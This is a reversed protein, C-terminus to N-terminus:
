YKINEIHIKEKKLTEEIHEIEQFQHKYINVEQLIKPKKIIEISEESIPIKIIEIAANTKNSSQSGLTRKHIVIDEHKIPITVTREEIYTEKYIIVNSTKVLRTSVDLCEERLKFKIPIEDNNIKNENLYNKREYNEYNSNEMSKNNQFTSKIM